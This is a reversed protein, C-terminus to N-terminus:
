NGYDYNEKLFEKWNKTWIELSANEMIWQRPNYRVRDKYVCEIMGAYTGACADWPLVEGVKIDGFDTDEFLGACSAVVPLGSAMGELMFYSNGEYNSCQLVIDAMQFDLYEMGDPANLFKFEFKGQLLEKIKDFKGQGDKNYDRACHIVIPKNSFRNIPKFVNIDVGNLIIKDAKVKHHIELYKASAESVAVMKTNPRHWMLDQEKNIELRGTNRLVFETWSGHVVSIIPIEKPIGVGWSGDVICLTDKDILKNIWLYRNLDQPVLRNFMTGTYIEGGVARQLLVNFREVGSLCGEQRSTYSIIAIKM